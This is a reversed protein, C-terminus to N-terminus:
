ENFIDSLSKLIDEYETQETVESKQTSIESAASIGALLAALGGVIGGTAVVKKINDNRRAIALQETEYESIQQYIDHMIDQVNTNSFAGYGEYFSYYESYDYHSCNGFRDRVYVGKDTFALGKECSSLIGIDFFSLLMEYSPINLYEKICAYGEGNYCNFNGNNVGSRMYNANSITYRAIWANIDDRTM